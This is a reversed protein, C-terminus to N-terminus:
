KLPKAARSTGILQSASATPTRSHVPLHREQLQPQGHLLRELEHERRAGDDRARAARRRAPDARLPHRDRAAGPGLDPRRARQKKVSIPLRYADYSPKVAGGHYRLGTQFGPGGCRRRSRQAGPRRLAPVALLEEPAAYRYSFEELTNLIEAQRSPTTGIFPDPPNTQYGFETNYIGLGRSIRGARAPSTSRARSAASRRGHERHRARPLGHGAPGYPHHAFGNASM